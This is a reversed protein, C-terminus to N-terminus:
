AKLAADCIETLRLVAEEEGKRGVIQLSVPADIYLAPDYREYNIKDFDCQFDHPEEKVDEMTVKTVPVIGVSQDTLNFAGTYGIYQQADHEFSTYPATPAIMADIPRGTGTRTATEEWSALQKTIFVKRRLCLRWYEFTSLEQANASLIGNLNPEGSLAVAEAIDRGGDADFLATTIQRGEEANPPTYDIVKHGQAELKAKMMKLGRLIPPSPKVLGDSWMIGFCLQKGGNHEELEYQSERWPVHSANPDYRWPQGALVAKVFLKLASISTTMPGLVSSIAEFGEMSNTAGGYPIRHYSPRLGYIGNFASPIRISGGIDSGVGLPSGRLAILAGEGGSSGGSSLDRNHPMVTRGYLNNVTEGSMLAQPVNTYVYFVAGQESLLKALVSDKESIRNLWGVYGMDVRKGAVNIQCKLSVPLGHLLGVPKGTRKLEADLYKARAIADDFWIDTLCNTLQHAIVARHIFARIVKEASWEASALKALLTDVDSDTVELEDRDLLEKPVATVNKTREDVEVKPGISKIVSALHARTTKVSDEWNTM